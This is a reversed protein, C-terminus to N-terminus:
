EDMDGEIQETIQDMEEGFEEVAGFVTAMGFIGLAVAGAGLLGGIASMKKNTAAGRRVRGWGLFGFLVALVGLILAIFGTLPVLGFGLGVLALVLATIGFGNRPERAQVPAQQEEAM